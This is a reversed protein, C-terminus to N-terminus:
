IRVRIYETMDKVTKIGSEAFTPFDIGFDQQLKAVLAFYDISTGGEDLFFDTSYGVEEVSKGLATAFYERIRQPFEEWVVNAEEQSCSQIKGSYYDAKLRKRNLKFEDDKILPEVVLCVKGIQSVLNHRKILADISSIIENAKHDSISKGTSALLVPLEKERGGILCVQEVGDVAFLREIENPNLNEGSVSVILDDERGSLFYRGDKETALDATKYWKGDLEIVNDGEIIRSAVSSGKVFLAGDEIKYSVSPLPSGISCSVIDKYRSSLEVSTIGIESMGYGNVLTYGLGNFFELTKKSIVSGGSIMFCVSQGFLKDRVEKFAIKRFLRGVLSNGLKQSIRLGKEFREAVEKSRSNIEALARSQVSNWFLPVAFIHTVKHRKIANQVVYPSLNNLLVFTRSFFGFWLYVAVFGFIHYFPLVTLLKINGDYYKKINKNKKLVYLSNQIIEYLKDATYSCIKLSSSGSSMIYFEKGFNQADERKDCEVSLLDKAIVTPAEFTKEDSIIVVAGMDVATKEIVSDPLRMNLLLPNFGAKLVAWFTAIMLPSNNMYIGITKGCTDLYKCSIIDSLKQSLQKVEGYTTKIIRYGDSEEFMVNESESFMLAYLSEMSIASDRLMRMKHEVFKPISKFNAIGEIM